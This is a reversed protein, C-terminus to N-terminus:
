DLFTEIGEFSFLRNCCYNVCEEFSIGDVLPERMSVYQFICSAFETGVLRTENFSVHKFECSYFRVDDFRSDCLNMYEFYCFRFECGDFNTGKMEAYSFECLTFKIGRLNIYSLGECRDAKLGEVELRKGSDGSSSLWENHLGRREEFSEGIHKGILGM